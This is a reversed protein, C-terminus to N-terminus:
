GSGTAPYLLFGTLQEWRERDQYFLPPFNFTLYFRAAKANAAEAVIAIRYRNGALFFDDIDSPPVVYFPRCRVGYQTQDEFYICGVSRSAAPALRELSATDPRHTWQLNGWLFPASRRWCAAERDWVEAKTVVVEVREAQSRGVNRIQLRTLWRDRDRDDVYGSEDPALEILLRPRQWWAGLTDRFLAYAAAIGSGASFWQPLTGWWAASDVCGPPLVGDPTM